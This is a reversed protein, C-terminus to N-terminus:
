AAQLIKTEELERKKLRDTLHTEGQLIANNAEQFVNASVAVDVTIKKNRAMRNAVEAWDYSWTPFGHLLVLAPGAGQDRYFLKGASADLYEGGAVWETANLQAPNAM